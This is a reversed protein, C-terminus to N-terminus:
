IEDQEPKRRTALSLRRLGPLRGGFADVVAFEGGVDEAGDLGPQFPTVVRKLAVAHGAGM